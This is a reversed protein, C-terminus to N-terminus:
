KVMLPTTPVAITRAIGKTIRLEEICGVFASGGAGQGVWLAGLGYSTSDSATSGSQTGNVYLITGVGAKRVLAIHTWAGLTIASAATILLTGTSSGGYVTVIGGTTTYIQLAGGTQGNTERFDLHVGNGAFSTPQVWYEITYDGTGFQLQTNNRAFLYNGTGGFYVSKGTNNRFPNFSRVRIDGNRTITRNSISSDKFSNSQCTLLSTGTIATLPQTPVTITTGTYVQSGKVVRLNSIYGPFYANYGNTGFPGLNGVRVTNGGTNVQNTYNTNQAVRTGDYYLSVTNGTKTAAAHHWTGLPITVNYVVSQQTTSGNYRGYFGLSSGATATGGLSFVYDTSLTGSDPFASLIVAGRNSDIDLPPAATLMFWCEITFDGSGYDFAANNVLSLFDGSGDFYNSYYNGAYPDDSMPQTTGVTEITNTSHTDIIGGSTGNLLLTTAPTPTMPAVPPVFSANYLATGRIVRADSIYGTFLQGTGQGGIYTLGSFTDNTTDTGQAVMAGNLFIKTNNTGTGSRTIAVHTWAATPIYATTYSLVIAGGIIWTVGQAGTSRNITLSWGTGSGPYTGIVGWGYTTTQAGTLYVWTEVTYDNAGLTLSPSAPATLYDGTGDFYMSGGNVSPTYVVGTTTMGFPTFPTPKVDGVATVPLKSASNDVMTSSQCTLFTTNTTATLPTTSPTFNTTYVANGITLRANSIYGSFYAGTSTDWKRGINVGGAASATTQWTTRAASVTKVGNVYIAAESGTYVGAIHYWTNLSLATSNTSNAQAAYTWVTGSYFALVPYGGAGTTTNTGNNLGLWFPIGGTSFNTAMISIGTFATVYVWAEMTFPTTASPLSIATSGVTLNDGNGDFYNSYSTPVSTVGGFPSFAQVSVDGAKTISLNNPSNDILRNSQCTLLSTTSTPALHSTSPTFNSTYVAARTVRLNSLYGTFPLSTGARMGIYATTKSTFTVGTDVTTGVGNIYTTLTTGTKVCAVHVWTNDLFSVATSANGDAQFTVGASNVYIQLDNTVGTGVEYIMQATATKVAYMWFEVTYDTTTSADLATGAVTLYDGAGDFYNSWGTQSYPSFTGQTVNGNRTIINNFGSQDVFGSNTAGGNYQCTLLQTNAVATLPSTPGGASPTIGVGKVVRLDSIHGLMPNSSNDYANVGIIPRNTTGIVYNNNDTYTTNVQTGNVYLRGSNSTRVYAIHYWNGALITGGSTFISGAGTFAQVVGGTSVQIAFRGTGTADGANMTDYLTRVASLSSINVWMEVTFDGTGMAFGPQNSSVTIYDGAGDFYASGLTNKAVDFPSSQLVKSVGTSTFVANGPGNDKFRNSQASLFKTDATVQLPSSPPTFGGTAYPTSGVTLRINSANGQLYGNGGGLDNGIYAKTFPLTLSANGASTSNLMVGDVYFYWTGSARQVAIHHWTNLKLTGVSVGSNYMSSPIYTSAGVINFFNASTTAATTKTARIMLEGATGGGLSVLPAGYLGFNFSTWYGWGELCFDSTGITVGTGLTGLIYSAGDLNYSYYGESYPSFNNPKTDGVITLQANNTSADEVFSKSSTSDTAGLLMGVNKWFSDSAINVTWYIYRTATRGTTSATAVLTTNSNEGSVTPTGSIVGNALTVGTPLGNATYTIGFGAASNAVLTVDTIPQGTPTSITAGNAPSTWTVVDPVVAFVVNSTSSRGTTNATAIITTSTNGVINSTGSITTGTLSLGTPLTNVSYTVGFGAASTASLSVNAFPTYEYATFVSGPTPSNWSVTDPNVVFQVSRSATRNTTNATATLTTSTNGVVNSTGTIAGGNISLGAPLQSAAFSVGFGAASTASLSTPSFSTYEYASIITNNAPSSWTVTDPNVVVNINRTATKNTTNSTATIAVNTTGITNITGAVTNGNLTLGSPLNNSSFSVSYGARSTASLGINALPTYEYASITAGASPSVWDVVDTKVTLSFQRTSDQKQDDKAQVVFSYTTTSGVVPAIGSLTGDASLTVGEPLNGEGPVISFTIPADGTASISASIAKTEYEEDLVTNASTTITPFNSVSLNLFIAGQGSSLNFLMLNYSGTTITPTQIRLERTSVFSTTLVTGNFYVISGAEFNNGVIKAYGGAPNLATDDLDNYASDCIVISQIVPLDSSGVIGAVASKNKLTQRKFSKLGM